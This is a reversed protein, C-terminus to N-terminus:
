QEGRHKIASLPALLAHGLKYSHSAYAQDLAQDRADLEMRLRAIEEQLNRVENTLNEKDGALDTARVLLKSQSLLALNRLTREHNGVYGDEGDPMAILSPAIEDLYQDAIDAPLTSLSWYSYNLIWNNCSEMLGVSDPLSVIVDKIARMAELACHWSKARTGELSKHNNARHHFLVKDVCCISKALMLSCFVFFADNTTRLPQFLLGSTRIFDARYLKDWPWGMFCQFLRRSYSSPEIAVDFPVGNLAFDIPWTDGTQNDFGESRAVVIDAGHSEGAERMTELADPEIWDDADLFYLYEGRAAKIGTNRAVGAYQNEQRILRLRDDSSALAEVVNPTGDTSGDDVVLIEIDPCTQSLVSKLCQAIYDEANYAPIIVSISPMSPEKKRIFGAPLGPREGYSFQAIANHAM